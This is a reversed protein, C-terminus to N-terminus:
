DRKHTQDTPEAADVFGAFRIRRKAERVVTFPPVLGRISQSPGRYHFQRGVFAGEDLWQITSGTAACGRIQGQTCLEGLHWERELKGDPSYLVIAPELALHALLLDRSDSVYMMQGPPGELDFERSKAFRDEDPDFEYFTVRHVPESGIDVPDSSTVRVVINGDPSIAARAELPGSLDAGEVSAVGFLCVVGLLWTTASSCM